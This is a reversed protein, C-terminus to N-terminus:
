ISFGNASSRKLCVKASRAVVQQDLTSVHKGARPRCGLTHKQHSPVFYRVATLPLSCHCRQIIRGHGLRFSTAQSMIRLRGFARHCRSMLTARQARPRGGAHPSCRSGRSRARRAQLPAKQRCRLLDAREAAVDPTTRFGDVAAPRHHTNTSM